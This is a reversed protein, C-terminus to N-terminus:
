ECMVSGKKELTAEMAAKIAHCDKKAIFIGGCDVCLRESVVRWVEQRCRRYSAVRNNHPLDKYYLVASNSSKCYPCKMM